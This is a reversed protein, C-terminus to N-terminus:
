VKINDANVNFIYALAYVHMPKIDTKGTEWDSVTKTSVGLKFALDRQTLHNDARLGKITRM